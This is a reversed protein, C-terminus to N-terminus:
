FETDDCALLPDIAQEALVSAVYDEYMSQRADACLGHCQGCEVQEHHYSFHCCCNIVTNM